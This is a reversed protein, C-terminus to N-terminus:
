GQRDIGDLNSVYSTDYENIGSYDPSHKHSLFKVMGASFKLADRQVRPLKNKGATMSTVSVDTTHLFGVRKETFSILM